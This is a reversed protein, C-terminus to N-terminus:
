PREEMGLRRRVEGARRARAEAPGPNALGALSKAAALPDEGRGQLAVRYWRPLGNHFLTTLADALVAPRERDHDAGVALALAIRHKLRRYRWIPLIFFRWLIYGCLGMTFSAAAAILLPASMPWDRAAFRRLPLGLPPRFAAQRATYDAGPDFDLWAHKFDAASQAIAQGIPGAGRRTDTLGGIPGGSCEPRSGSVM